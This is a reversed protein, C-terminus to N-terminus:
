DCGDGLCLTRERKRNRLLTIQLGRLRKAVLFAVSLMPHRRDHGLQLGRGLRALPLGLYERAVNGAALQGHDM